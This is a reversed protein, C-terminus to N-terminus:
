PLYPARGFSFGAAGALELELGLKGVLEVAEVFRLPNGEWFRRVAVVKSIREGCDCCDCCLWKQLGM